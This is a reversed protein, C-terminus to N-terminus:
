IMGSLARALEFARRELLVPTECVYMLSQSRERFVRADWALATRLEEIKAADREAEPAAELRALELQREEVFAALDAQRHAYRAIGSIIQSREVNIRHLVAEFLLGLREARGAEDLGEVLPAAAAAAEEASVRRPAIARALRKIEKEVAADPAHAPDPPPVPWMQALALAPVKRQVCPWDPDVGNAARAPAAAALAAAMAAFAVCRMYGPISGTRRM